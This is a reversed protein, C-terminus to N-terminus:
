RARLNRLTERLRVLTHSVSSPFVKEHFNWILLKTLKSKSPLIIPRNEDPPSTTKQLRGSVPLINKDDLFHKFM